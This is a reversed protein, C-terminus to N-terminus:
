NETPACEYTAPEVGWDPHTCFAVSRDKERVDINRKGEREREGKRERFDFM